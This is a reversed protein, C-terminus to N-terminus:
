ISEVKNSIWEDLDYYITSRTQTYVEQNHIRADKTDTYIKKIYNENNGIEKILEFIAELRKDNDIINDYECLYDQLEFGFKRLYEVKHPSNFWIFFRGTSLPKGTKETTFHVGGRQQSESIIDFHTNNYIMEPVAHSLIYSKDELTVPIMTNLKERLDQSILKDLIDKDELYSDSNNRHYHHGIYTSYVYSQWRFREFMQTRYERESGLLMNFTFDKQRYDFDITTDKSTYIKKNAFWPINFTRSEELPYDNDESLSIYFVNLKALETLFEQILKKRESTRGNPTMDILESIVFFCIDYKKIEILLNDLQLKCLHTRHAVDYWSTEYWLWREWDLIIIKEPSNEYKKELEGKESQWYSLFIM